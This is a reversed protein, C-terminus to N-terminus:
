KELTTVRDELNEIDNRLESDNYDDTCSSLWFSCTCMVTYAVWMKRIQMMVIFNKKQKCFYYLPM